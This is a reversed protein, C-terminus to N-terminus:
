RYGHKSPPLLQRCCDEKGVRQNPDVDASVERKCHQLLGVGLLGRGSQRAWPCGGVAAAKWFKLKGGRVVWGAAASVAAVSCRWGLRVGAMGEGFRGLVSGTGVWCKSVPPRLRLRLAFANQFGDFALQGPGQDFHFLVHLAGDAIRAAFLQHVDAFHVVDRESTVVSAFM